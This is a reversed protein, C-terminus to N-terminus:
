GIVIGYESIMVGAVVLCTLGVGALMSLLIGVPTSVNM